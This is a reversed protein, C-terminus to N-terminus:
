FSLRSMDAFRNKAKERNQDERGNETNQANQDTKLIQDEHGNETDPDPTPSKGLGERLGTKCPSKEVEVESM